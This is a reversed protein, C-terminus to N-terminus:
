HQKSVSNYTLKILSLSLNTKLDGAVALQCRLLWKYPLQIMNELVGMATQCESEWAKWM